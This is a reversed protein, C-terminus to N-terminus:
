FESELLNKIDITNSDIIIPEFLTNIIEPLPKVKKDEFYIKDYSNLKTAHNMRKYLTNSDTLQTANIISYVNYNNNLFVGSDIKIYSAIFNSRFLTDISCNYVISRYFSINDFDEHKRESQFHNFTIICSDFTSLYLQTNYFENNSLKCGKFSTNELNSNLFACDQFTFNKFICNSINSYNFKRNAIYKKYFFHSILPDSPRILDNLFNENSINIASRFTPFFCNTNQFKLIQSFNKNRSTKNNANILIGISLIVSFLSYFGLIIFARHRYFFFRSCFKNIEENVFYIIIFSFLILIFVAIYLLTYKFYIYLLFFTPLLFIIFFTFIKLSANKYGSHFYQEPKTCKENGFVEITKDTYFIYLFIAYIILIGIFHTKTYINLFLFDYNGFYVYLVSIFLSFYVLMCITYYIAIQFKTIKLEEIMKINYDFKGIMNNNDSMLTSNNNRYEKILNISKNVLKDRNKIFFYPIRSIHNMVIEYMQFNTKKFEYGKSLILSTPSFAQTTKTLQKFIDRTTNIIILFDLVIIVAHYLLWFINQYAVFRIFIYILITLPFYFIMYNIILFLLPGNIKTNYRLGIFNFM